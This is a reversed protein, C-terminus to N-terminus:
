GKLFRTIYNMPYIPTKSQKAVIYDVLIKCTYIFLGIILLSLFIDNGVFWMYSISQIEM